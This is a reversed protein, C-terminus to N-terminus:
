LRIGLDKLQSAASMYANGGGVSKPATAYMVLSDVARELLLMRPSWDGHPLLQCVHRVM